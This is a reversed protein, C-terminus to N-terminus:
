IVMLLTVKSISLVPKIGAEDGEQLNAITAKYGNTEAYRLYMRMLMSAWDQSETGGAGSNIKLVCDM